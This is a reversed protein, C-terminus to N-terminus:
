TSSIGKESMGSGTPYTAHVARTATRGQRGVQDTSRAQVPLPASAGGYHGLPHLAIRPGARLRLDLLSDAYGESWLGTMDFYTGSLSAPARLPRQAIVEPLGWSMITRDDAIRNGHSLIARPVRTLYTPDFDQISEAARADGFAYEPEELREYSHRTAPHIAVAMQESPWSVHPAKGRRKKACNHPSEWRAPIRLLWWSLPLSGLWKVVFFAKTVLTSRVAPTTLRSTVDGVPAILRRVSRREPDAHTWRSVCRAMLPM